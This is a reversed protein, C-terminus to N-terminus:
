RRENLRKFEQELWDYDNVRSITPNGLAYDRGQMAGLKAWDTFDADMNITLWKSLRYKSENDTKVALKACERFASRWTDFESVNFRTENSVQDMVKFKKGVSTTLDTGWKNTKKLLATPFLKVGGYGYTLGNVPNISNWVYVCDRDYISPQFDFTWDNNLWADGDVVYFMDTTVLQAAAKHANLIGQVGQVRKANPAFNLLRNWNDEANSEKYSIFVVDLQRPIMPEVIGMEKTGIIINSATLKAAWVKENNVEMYWVHEYDRSHYPIKYDIEIYINKLAPNFTLVQEPEIEGMDQVGSSEKVFRQKVAWVRDDSNHYDPSIMWVHEYKLDYWPTVYDFNFNYSNLDPNVEISPTPSIYDVFKTGKVARVARAKVAWMEKEGNPLHQNDLMWVHEYRLDYWPITYEINYDMKPLNPNYTLSLKPSVSGVVKSGELTIASSAKVAWIEEEGNPLHKRDLMWVHEFGLDHWPITYDGDYNMKPLDPNYTITAKPSIYDVIKSGDLENTVQITFAWIDDEGNALHKPDLMWVHEFAFDHWPITYELDYDLEPLEPNFV